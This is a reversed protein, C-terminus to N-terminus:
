QTLPHPDFVSGGQQAKNYEWREHYREEMERLGHGLAFDLVADFMSEAQEQSDALIIQPLMEEFHRILTERQIGLPETSDITLDIVVFEDSLRLRPTFITAQMFDVWNRDEEPLMLNAAFKANDVHNAHGKVDWRWIGIREHEAAPLTEPATHLIPFGEPTLEDWLVGQPGYMMEVSGLPTLMWTMLEFIRDPHEASRTIFSGNWGLTDHTDHNIDTHALGRAPPFLFVDGGIEHRIIEISNGPDNERLIRRYGNNNDQSHDYMLLGAQGNTVHELFQDVTNTINTAPFLGERHWRNAEMVAERWVWNDWRSGFTGDPKIGWWDEWGHTLGGFSRYIGSVFRGGYAPGDETMVPIVPAGGSTTLNADRVAVAYDFLDEFTVIEPAGVAEHINTTVLWAFNGGTAGGLQGVTGSRVWNPIVHNVGDVEYFSQTSAPVNEHYWNNDVMDVLEDISYFLGLRSMEVNQADREMWIADPLDDAIIMLNLVEMPIGDPARTDAYIQFMEGWHQSILDDGWPQPTYWDYNFYWVFEVHDRDGTAVDDNGDPTPADVGADPTEVDERGVPDPTDGGNGGNCGALGIALVVVLVLCLKRIM